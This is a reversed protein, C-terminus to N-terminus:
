EIPVAVTIFLKGGKEGVAFSADTPGGPHAQFKVRLMQTIPLGTRYLVGDHTLEAREKEGREPKALAIQSIPPEILLPLM